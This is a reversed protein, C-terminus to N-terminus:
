YQKNKISELEKIKETGFPKQIFGDVLDSIETIENKNYASMIIIPTRKLQNSKEYKRIEQTATIGNMVPMKIDMLITSYPINQKSNTTYKEVADLGNIATDVYYNKTKELVMKTSLANIVEDDVCLIRNIM